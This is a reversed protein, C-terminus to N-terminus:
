QSQETNEDTCVGISSSVDEAVRRAAKLETVRQMSVFHTAYWKEVEPNGYKSFRLPIVPTRGQGNKKKVAWRQYCCFSPKLGSKQAYVRMQHMVFSLKHLNVTCVSELYPIRGFRWDEYKKKPLVGIEMLVDVPTAYGRERCQRYMSSYVKGVLEGNNMMSM